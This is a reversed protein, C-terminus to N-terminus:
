VEEGLSQLEFKLEALKLHIQGEDEQSLPTQPLFRLITDCAKRAERRNREKKSETTANQAIRARTLGALLEARLFEAGAGIFGFVFEGENM